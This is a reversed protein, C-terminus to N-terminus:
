ARARDAAEEIPPLYTTGYPQDNGQPLLAYVDYTEGSANETASDGGDDATDDAATDGAATDDGGTDDAGDDGACATMVLAGAMVLGVLRVPRMKM